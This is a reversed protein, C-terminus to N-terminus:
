GAQGYNSYQTDAHEADEDGDEIERLQREKTNNM